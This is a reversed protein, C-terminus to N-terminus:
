LDFRRKRVTRVDEPSVQTGDVEVPQGGALKGFAPGDPVGRERAKEPDFGEEYVVLTGNERTCEDYENEIIDVLGDVIASRKQAGTVAVTSDPQTGGETTTYAVTEAAIISLSRDSDITAAEALLDDPLHTIEWGNSANEGATREATPAAEGFRLGEEIPEIQAELEHVLALSVGDSERLWTESVVHYGLEEIVASLRLHDGDLLAYRANSNEFAAEIVDANREPDGLADLGWDPAIHGIAWDTERLIREFKPAYHGGGFGVLHRCPRNSQGNSSTDSECRDPSVGRIALIAKAVARAADPDRWEQESSGVEVFMSPAGVDTPGHHTCEMGVQYKEPAYTSLSEVVRAHANPCACALSREQGGYEAPGFNGTHHATLLPGTEGAHRSAFVVLSPDDFVDAPRHLDLHLEDFERLTASNTRYVTGGGDGDPRTDDTTTEWEALDLLHEGIHVSAEDARSVIIGLM